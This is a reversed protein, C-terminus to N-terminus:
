EEGDKLIIKFVVNENILGPFHYYYVDYLVPNYDNSGTIYDEKYDFLSLIDCNQEEYIVKKIQINEEKPFALIIDHLDFDYITLDFSEKPTIVSKAHRYGNAPNYKGVFCRRRGIISDSLELTGEPLSYYFGLNDQVSPGSKYQGLLTIKVSEGDIIDVDIDIFTRGAFDKEITENPYELRVILSELEGGDNQIYKPTLRFSVNKDGPEYSINKHVDDHNITIDLLLEPQKLEVKIQKTLLKNLIKQLNSTNDIIDGDNFGGLSNGEGLNVKIATDILINSSTTRVSSFKEELDKLYDTLTQTVDNITININDTDFDNRLRQIEGDIYTTDAKNKILDSLESKLADISELFAQNVDDKSVVYDEDLTKSLFGAIVAYVEHEYLYQGDHSHHYMAYRNDHDHGIKSFQTHTHQINAKNKLDQKTVYNNLSIGQGSLIDIAERKTLYEAAVSDLFGKIGNKIVLVTITEGIEFIDSSDQNLIIVIGTSTLEVNFDYVLQGRDFLLITDGNNKDYQVDNIPLRKEDLLEKILIKKYQFTQTPIIHDKWVYEGNEVSLYVPRDQMNEPIEPLDKPADQWQLEYRYAVEETNIGDKDVRKISLIKDKGYPLNEADINGLQDLIEKNEHSHSGLLVEKWMKTQYDHMYFASRVRTTSNLVNRVHVFVNRDEPINHIYQLDKIKDVTALLELPSSSILIDENDANDAINSFQITVKQNEAM